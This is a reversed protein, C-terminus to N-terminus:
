KMLTARKGPELSTELTRCPQRYGQDESGAVSNNRLVLPIHTTLGKVGPNFGEVCRQRVLNKVPSKAEQVTCKTLM